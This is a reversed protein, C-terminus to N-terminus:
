GAQTKLSSRHRAGHRYGILARMAKLFRTHVMEVRRDWTELQSLTPHPGIRETLMQIRQFTIWADIVNDILLREAGTASDYDLELRLRSAEAVIAGRIPESFGDSEMGKTRVAELPSRFVAVDPGDLDLAAVAARAPAADSVGLRDLIIKRAAPDIDMEVGQRKRLSKTVRWGRESDIMSSPSSVTPSIAAM